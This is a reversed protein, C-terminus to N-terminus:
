GEEIEKGTVAMFDDARRRQHRAVIGGQQEGVGTHHLELIDEGSRFRQGILAGGCRLFAHAGATLM